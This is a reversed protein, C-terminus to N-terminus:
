CASPCCLLPFGHLRTGNYKKKTDTAVPFTCIKVRNIHLTFITCDPFLPNRKMQKEYFTSMSSFVMFTKNKSRCFEWICRAQYCTYVHWCVCRSHARFPFLWRYGSIADAVTCYQVTQVVVMQVDSLTRSKMYEVAMNESLLSVFSSRWINPRWSFCVNQCCFSASAGAQHFSGYNSCVKYLKLVVKGYLLGNFVLLWTSWYEPYSYITWHSCQKDGAKALHQQLVAPLCTDKTIALSPLFYM